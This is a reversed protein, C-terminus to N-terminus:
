WTNAKLLAPTGDLDRIIRMLGESIAGSQHPKKGGARGQPRAPPPPVPGDFGTGPHTGARPEDKQRMDPGALARTRIDCGPLSCGALEVLM